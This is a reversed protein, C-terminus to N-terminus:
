RAMFNIQFIPLLMAVVIFAVISGMVLIMIPELLSILTRLNREVQREYGLSIKRLVKELNGSEEGVGVINVIDIPFYKSKSVARSLASGDRVEVRMQEVEKKLVSNEIIDRVIELSPLITVGNGLLTALIRCFRGMQTKLVIAGLIPIKLKMRDFFIGGESTRSIRSFIFVILMVSLIVLWWYHGLFASFSVLLQTPVPLVQDFDQFVIVLKPIVFSLLGWITLVGVAAILLPYIMASSVQSRLEDEEELFDALRVMVEKLFGGAEASRILSVYLGSFIKPHQALANSFTAGEKLDAILKDIVFKLSPKWVQRSVLMLAALITLGADLLDSIQRTFIVIDASKVRGMNGVIISDSGSSDLIKIQIPYLSLSDLKALVQAKNEAEIVGGKREKSKTYAQYLFKPM